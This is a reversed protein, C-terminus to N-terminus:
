TVATKELTKEHQLRSMNKVESVLLAAAVIVAMIDSVPGAYLIGEIGLSRPLILLLPILFLIQRTMSIFLGRRGKGISTLFGVTIPQVCNLFTFFMFIRLYRSGFEFFSEPNNGYFMLLQRPLLQYVLFMVSSIVVAYSLAKKVTERVRDYNRAGYNFGIIPQCGQSLGIIFSFFFMSLKNISGVCAILVDGGYMSLEGYTKLTNNMIIQVITMAIQNFFSAVGLSFIAKIFELRPVFYEKVFRVSQFSKVFYLAGMAASIFMGFSTAFAIGQIGFNFVFLMIPDFILNFIAGTLMCVMSYRPNGDARILQSFIASLIGFPIGYVIIRTYEIAHPMIADTTGFLVLMPKLFILAVSFLVLGIIVGLTIANGAVRGAKEKDKRGLSLNFNSACGVSLMLSLATMITTIPFSVTTAGIGLMGIDSWGILVQDVMNYVANVVMSIIAPIAYHLILKTVKVHGLAGVREINEEDGEDESHDELRLEEM